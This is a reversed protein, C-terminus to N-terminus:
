GKPQIPSASPIQKNRAPLFPKRFAEEFGYGGAFDKRSDKDTKGLVGQEVLNFVIEGFDECRAIGWRNLVTHAMAGFEQLAYQRIGELLEQGTVHRGEGEVPKKLNKITFDLAERLFLYAQEHYRSDRALILELAQEYTPKIM